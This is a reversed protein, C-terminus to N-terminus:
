LGKRTAYAALIELRNRCGTKKLLNTMHFKVTRESVVLEGAIEANTKEALVLRLIDRERATLGCHAAFREFHDNTTEPTSGDVSANHPPAFFQQYLVFFLGMTVVFFVATVSILVVPASSLALSLTTGCADGVHRLLMGLGALYPNGLAEALDTSLLVCFLVYIGAFLYALGWLPMAPAGASSLAIMLFPMALSVICIALGLDRDRDSALGAIILGIGYFLRSLELSVGSAIDTAPFSFGATRVISAMVVTLCAVLLIQHTPKQEAPTLPRVDMVNTHLLTLVVVGVVLCCVLCSPGRTLVGNGPLSLLWTVLTSVAYASGFTIGRQGLEVQTCLLTLYYGQMIGFLANALYGFALSVALSGSLTAPVLLLLSLVISASIVLREHSRSREYRMAWLYAGTGLAQVLYGCVITLMEVAEPQALDMVRYLWSLWGTSSLLFCLSIVLATNTRADLSEIPRHTSHM